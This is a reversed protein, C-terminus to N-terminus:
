IGDAMWIHSRGTFTSRSHFQPHIWCNGRTWQPCQLGTSNDFLVWSNFIHSQFRHKEPKSFNCIWQWVRGMTQIQPWSTISTVNETGTAGGEAWDISYSIPNGQDTNITVTIPTNLFAYLKSPDSAVTFTGNINVTMNAIPTQCNTPNSALNITEDM